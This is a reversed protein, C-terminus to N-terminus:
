PNASKTPLPGLAPTPTATATASACGVLLLLWTIWLVHKFFLHQHKIQAVASYCHGHRNLAPQPHICHNARAPLPNGEDGRGEEGAAAPSSPIVDGGRRDCHSLPDPPSPRSQRLRLRM